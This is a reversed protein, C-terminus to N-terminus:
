IPRGRSAWSCPASCARRGTRSTPGASPPAPPPRRGDHRYSEDVVRGGTDGNIALTSTYVGKPVRLERMVELVNRTGTVNVSEGWQRHRTAVRVYAGLRFVGQVRQM